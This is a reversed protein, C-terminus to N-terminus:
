KDLEAQITAEVDNTVDRTYKNVLGDDTAWRGRHIGAQTKGQLVWTNYAPGSSRAIATISNATRQMLQRRGRGLNGTRVYRQNPLPPPYKHWEAGIRESWYRFRPEIVDQARDVSNLKRVLNDIGVIEIDAM